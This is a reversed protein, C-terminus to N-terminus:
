DPIYSISVEIVIDCDSSSVEKHHTQFILVTFRHSKPCIKMIKMFIKMIIFQIGLKM